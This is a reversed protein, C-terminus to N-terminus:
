PTLEALTPRLMEAVTLPYGERTRITARWPPPIPREFPWATRLITKHARVVLEVDSPNVPKWEGDRYVEPFILPLTV